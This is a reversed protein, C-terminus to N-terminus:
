RRRPWSALPSCRDSIARGPRRWAGSRTPWRELLARDAGVVLRGDELATTAPVAGSERIAAEAAFATDLNHPLPLGQAILSSELAVVPRGQALADRVEEGIVLWDTSMPKM